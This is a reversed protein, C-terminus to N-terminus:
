IIVESTLVTLKEKLFLFVAVDQQLSFEKLIKATLESKGAEM